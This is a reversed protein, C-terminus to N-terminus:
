SLVENYRPEDKLSVGFHKFIMTMLMGYPVSSTSKIRKSVKIMHNIILYPLSLPIKRWLYYIILLDHDNVEQFTGARPLEFHLNIWHVIRRFYTLSKSKFDKHKDELFNKKIKKKRLGMIEIWDDYLKSSDIPVGM